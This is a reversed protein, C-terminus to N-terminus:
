VKNKNMYIFMEWINITIHEVDGGYASFESTYYKVNCDAGRIDYSKIIVTEYKITDIIYKQLLDVM